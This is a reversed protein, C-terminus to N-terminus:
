RRCFYNIIQKRSRKPTVLKGRNAWYIWQSHTHTHTGNIQRQKTSIQMKDNATNDPTQKAQAKIRKALQSESEPQQTRERTKCLQVNCIIMYCICGMCAHMCCVLMFIEMCFQVIDHRWIMSPPTKNNNTATTSKQDILPFMCVWVRARVLWIYPISRM